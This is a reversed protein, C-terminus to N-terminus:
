TEPASLFMAGLRAGVSSPDDASGRMEREVFANGSTTVIFGRMLIDNGALTTHVGLPARCDFGVARLLGLDALSRTRQDPDGAAECAAQSRRDGSRIELAIVGQGPAPYFVAPDFEHSVRHDLNLRILGAKSLLVGHYLGSDLKALRTEVNGRIDRIDLDPRLRTLLARRRMSGTGILAGRPLAAFTFGERLVLADAQSEPSFFACLQLGPATAATVDKFSHVAVDITTDFLAQEIERIFVGKGGMVLLSSHQDRDGATAIVRTEITLSPNAKELRQRAIDAQARALASGRTGLIVTSRM